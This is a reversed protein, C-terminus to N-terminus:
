AWFGKLTEQSWLHLKQLLVMWMVCPATSLSDKTIQFNPQTSCLNWYPKWNRPICVTICISHCRPHTQHQFCAFDQLTFIHFGYALQQTWISISADSHSFHLHKHSTPQCATSSIWHGLNSEQTCCSSPGKKLEEFNTCVQWHRDQRWTCLM